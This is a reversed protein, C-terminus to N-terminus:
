SSSGQFRLNFRYIATSTGTADTMGVVSGLHDKYLWSKATTTAGDYAKNHTVGAVV